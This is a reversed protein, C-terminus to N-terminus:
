KGKGSESNRWRQREIEERASDGDSRRERGTEALSLRRARRDTRPRRTERQRQTERVTREREREREGKEREGHGEIETERLAADPGCLCPPM